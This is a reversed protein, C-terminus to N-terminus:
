GGRVGGDVVAHWGGAQIGRGHQVNRRDIQERLEGTRRNHEEM